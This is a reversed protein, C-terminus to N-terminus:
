APVNYFMECFKLVFNICDFFFVVVLMHSFLWVCLTCDPTGPCVDTM